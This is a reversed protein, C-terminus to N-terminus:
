INKDFIVKLFKKVIQEKDNFLVYHQMNKESKERFSFYDSKWLEYAERMKKRLDLAHPEYYNMHTPSYFVSSMNFCPQEFSNFLYNTEKSLFDVHGGKDPAIVSLGMSSAEALTLGYGEGRTATAFIDAERYLELVRDKSIYDTVLKIKCKAQKGYDSAEAKLIKIDQIIRQKEAQKDAKQNLEDRYTKICLEVDDNDHFESIFSKILVDFGKRYIWQSMSFITFKDKKSRNFNKTAKRSILPAYYTKINTSRDLVEKNWLCSGVVKHFTGDSYLTKWMKPIDTAEWSIMSINEYSNNMLDKIATSSNILNPLGHLICIYNKYNNKIFEETNSISTNNLIENIETDALNNKELDISITFLQIDINSSHIARLYERAADAYGCGDRFQAIYVVKKM